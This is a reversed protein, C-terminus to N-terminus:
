TGTLNRLSEVYRFNLPQFLRRTSALRVLPEVFHSSPPLAFIDVIAAAFLLLRRGRGEM